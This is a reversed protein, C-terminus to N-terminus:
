GFAPESDSFIRRLKGRVGSEMKPLLLQLVPVGCDETFQRKDFSFEGIRRGVVVLDADQEAAVRAFTRYPRASEELLPTCSFGPGGAKHVFHRLERIREARMSDHSYVTDSCYVHLAM